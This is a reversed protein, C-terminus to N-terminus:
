EKTWGYKKNGKKDREKKWTNQKHMRTRNEHVKGKESEYYNEGWKIHTFPEIITKNFFMKSYFPDM